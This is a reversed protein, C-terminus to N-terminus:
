AVEAWGTGLQDPSAVIERATMGAWVGSDPCARRAYDACLKLSPCSDCVDRAVSERAAREEASEAHAPGNHLDLDLLCDAEPAGGRGRFAKRRQNPSLLSPHIKARGTTVSIPDTAM